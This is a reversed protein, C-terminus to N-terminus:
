FDNAPVQFLEADLNESGDRLLEGGPLLYACFVRRKSRWSHCVRGDGDILYTERGCSLLNYGAESKAGRRLVGVTREGVPCGVSSTHESQLRPM